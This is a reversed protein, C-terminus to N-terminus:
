KDIKDQSKLSKLSALLWGIIFWLLAMRWNNFFSRMPLFPFFSIIFCTVLGIQIPLNQWLPYLKVMKYIWTALLILIIFIGIIGTEVLLEVYFNHSHLGCRREINDTPGYKAEVCKKQFNSVGVGLLPNELFIKLSRTWIQIYHDEKFNSMQGITQTILRDKINPNFLAILIGVSLTIAGSIIFFKRKNKWLLGASLFGIFLLPIQVREGSLIIPMIAFIILMIGSLKYYIQKKQWLFHFALLLGPYLLFHLYGGIRQHHMPGTLRNETPKQIGFFDYGDFYQYYTDIMAFTLVISLVILLYKQLDPKESLTHELAIGFFIFRIFGVGHKFAINFNIAIFSIAIIYVWFFLAIQVWKEHIWKFDKKYASRILFAVSVISLMVDAIGAGLLLFLPFLCIIYNPINTVIRYM